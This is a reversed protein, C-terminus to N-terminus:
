YLFTRQRASGSVMAGISLLGSWLTTSLGDDWQDEGRFAWALYDLWGECLLEFFDDLGEVLDEDLDGVVVGLAAAGRAVDEGALQGGEGAGQLGHV